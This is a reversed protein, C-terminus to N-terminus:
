RRAIISILGSYDAAQANSQNTGASIGLGFNDGLGIDFTYGVDFSIRDVSAAREVDVDVYAYSGSHARRWLRVGGQYGCDFGSGYMDDECLVGATADLGTSNAIPDFSGFVSYTLPISIRNRNIRGLDILVDQASEDEFIADLKAHRLNETAHSLVMNVTLPRDGLNVNGRLIGGIMFRNGSFKGNIGLGNDSLGFDYSSRGLGVFVGAVLDRNIRARGYLTLTGGYDSIRSDSFGDITDSSTSVIANIGLQFDDSLKKELQVSAFGRARSNGSVSSFTTGFDLSIQLSSDCGTVTNKFRADANQSLENANLSGSVSAKRRSSLCSTDGLMVDENYSLLDSLGVTAHARLGGRLPGTVEDLRQQLEPHNLVTVDNLIRTFNGLADSAEIEIVYANDGNDDAPAEFDPALNFTLAGTGPDISLDGADVGGSIAWTVPENATLTAVATQGEKVNFRAASTIGPALDDIDLVNVTVTQTSVNGPADTAEIEIVYANDGNDDAPAEFDPVVSFTLAGTGADVALHAADVGGAIAWTVPEGATLTAVVTQGENVDFSAASTIGPALDDVDLVNVTVTQTSVNGQADSAEIEIAYANDGNDDAPAEFDPVINFTLAGTNTDISLDGADVGGTITWTVPEDATLTAVGTEGENVDFSAASTIGPAADDVDLVNVTVTQTSVNGQVDSAEIEIVYTNDGNDDAPAEFDPVVSFTLAGTNPDISLDGADVGGTITWTVPEDATLTAVGTEGENVDFSAASTIGPALDDLDLVNVTITQSSVNDQADSAEIEIVYGNDGNDDAPAEFDPVVSFTLAGTGPDISLDGADVGGAIAWTVPEDATLTAVGTEGENVDFSAASTIAPAADFILSAVDFNVPDPIVVEFIYTGATVAVNSGSVQKWLGIPDSALFSTSATAIITGGANRINISMGSLAQQNDRISFWGSFNLMGNAPVNVTQRINGSASNVDFYQLGGGIPTATPNGAYGSWPRVINYPQTQAPAVDEISWGPITTYFNNGNAPTVPSEFSNNALLEQAALPSLGFSLAVIVAAAFRLILSGVCAMPARNYGWMWRQFNLTNQVPSDIQFQPQTAM